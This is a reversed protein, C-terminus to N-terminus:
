NFLFIIHIILILKFEILNFNKLGISLNIIRDIIGGFALPQFTFSLYCCATEDDRFGVFTVFGM